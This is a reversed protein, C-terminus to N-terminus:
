PPNTWDSITTHAAGKTSHTVRDAPVDPLAEGNSDPPEDDYQYFAIEGQPNTYLTTHNRVPVAHMSGGRITAISAEITALDRSLADPPEEPEPSVTRMCQQYRKYASKVAERQEKANEIQKADSLDNELRDFCETSTFDPDVASM